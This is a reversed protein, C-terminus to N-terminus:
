LYQSFKYWLKSKKPPIMINEPIKVHKIHKLGSLKTKNQHEFQGMILCHSSRWTSEQMRKVFDWRRKRGACPSTGLKHQTERARARSDVLLVCYKCVNLRPESTSMAVPNVSSRPRQKCLNLFNIKRKRLLIYWYNM